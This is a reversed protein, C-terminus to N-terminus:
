KLLEQLLGPWAGTLAEPTYQIYSIQDLGIEFNLM